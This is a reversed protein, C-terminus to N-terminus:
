NMISEILWTKEDIFGEEIGLKKAIDILEYITFPHEKQWNEKDRTEMCAGIFQKLVEMKAEKIAKDADNEKVFSDNSNPLYYVKVNQM